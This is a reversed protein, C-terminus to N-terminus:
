HTAPTPQAAAPPADSAAQVGVLEVEFILLENAGIDNGVGREGYALEPPIVIQWKSGVPMLKLAEKWGPILSSLTLPTTKGPESADFEKGNILNGRYHVIVIDTDKPLAGGGKKLVKYQVGSPLSQVGEKKKNEELFDMSKKKNEVGATRRNFVMKKRMEGQFQRLLPRLDKEPMLLDGGAMGDKLGRILLDLNIEVGEKTFNRSIDVGLGYSIKDQDSKLVTADQKASVPLAAFFMLLCLLTKYKITITNM